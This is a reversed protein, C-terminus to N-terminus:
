SSFTDVHDIFSHDREENKLGRVNFVHVHFGPSIEATAIGMCEGYKMIKGENKIYSTAVKHGYSIDEMVKIQDKEGQISLLEGSKLNKLAVAVNDNPNLKLANYKKDM